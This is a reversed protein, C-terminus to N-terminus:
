ARARCSIWSAAEDLVRFRELGVAALDRDLSEDCSRRSTFPHRWARGEHEYVMTASVLEGEVRLDTLTMRVGGRESTGEQPTWDLPLRQLLVVGDAAVHRACAALLRRRVGEDPENVVNSALLVAPFRRGLELTEIDALVTEAGRVRALMAAENDVAVIAHGLALLPHTIRGAGCGLELIEAGPPIAAHVLEPEGLPELLAYLEVPSGDPAAGSVLLLKGSAQPREAASRPPM